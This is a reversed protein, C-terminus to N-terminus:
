WRMAWRRMRSGARRRVSWAGATQAKLEEDPGEALRTGRDPVSKGDEGM